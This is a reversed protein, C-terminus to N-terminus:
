TLAVVNFEVQKSDIDIIIQNFLDIFSRAANKKQVKDISLTGNIFDLTYEKKHYDSFLNIYIETKKIYAFYKSDTSNSSVKIMENDKCFMEILTLCSERLEKFNYFENQSVDNPHVESTTLHDRQNTVSSMNLQQTSFQTYVHKIFVKLFVSNNYFGMIKQPLKFHQDCITRIRQHESSSILHSKLKTSILISDSESVNMFAFMPGENLMGLINQKYRNILTKDEIPTSFNRVFFQNGKYLITQIKNNQSNLLKIQYYNDKVLLMFCTNKTEYFFLVHKFLTISTM